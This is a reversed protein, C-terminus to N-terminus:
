QCKKEKMSDLLILAIVSDNNQSESSAHFVSSVCRRLVLATHRQFNVPLCCDFSILSNKVEALYFEGKSIGIRFSAM